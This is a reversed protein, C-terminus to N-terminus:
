TSVKKIKKQLSQGFHFLCGKMSVGLLKYKFSKIAAREFDVMVQKPKLILGHKSAEDILAKLAEDYDRCRRRKMLIFAASIMRHEIWGHLYKAATHFTGEGYWNLFKALIRLGILSCFVM